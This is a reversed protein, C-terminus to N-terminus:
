AETTWRTDAPVAKTQTEEEKYPLGEWPCQERSEQIELSTGLMQDQIMMDKGQDHLAGEGEM